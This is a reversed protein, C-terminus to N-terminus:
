EDSEGQRTLPVDVKHYSGLNTVLFDKRQLFGLIRKTRPDLVGADFELFFRMSFPSNPISSSQLQEINVGEVKFPILADLLSGPEQGTELLITSKNTDPGYTQGNRKELQLFRTINDPDDQIKERLVSLGHLEGARRSAIAAKTPDGWQAVLLASGATDEQEVRRIDHRVEPSHLFMGCQGLAPAQSHVERIDGVVAGELGLLQHEVRVYTEATIVFDGSVLQNFPDPIYGFRNNAIATVASGVKGTRLDRFLEDHTDIYAMSELNGGLLLAAEEHFSGPGGQIGTQTTM